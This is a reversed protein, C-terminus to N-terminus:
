LRLVLQPSTLRVQLWDSGVVLMYVLFFRNKFTAIARSNDVVKNEPGDEPNAIIEPTQKRQHYALAANLAVLAALNVSYFDM